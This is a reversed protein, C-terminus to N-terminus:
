VNGELTALMHRSSEIQTAGPAIQACEADSLRIVYQAINTTPLAPLHEAHEKIIERIKEIGVMLDTHRTLKTLFKLNTTWTVQIEVICQKLDMTPLAFTTMKQIPITDETSCRLLRLLNAAGLTAKREAWLMPSSRIELTLLVKKKSEDAYVVIDARERTSASLIPFEKVGKIEEDAEVVFLTNVTDCLAQICAKGVQDNVHTTGKQQLEEILADFNLGVGM